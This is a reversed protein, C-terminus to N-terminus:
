PKPSLSISGFLVVRPPCSEAPPSEMAAAEDEDLMMAVASYRRGDGFRVDDFSHSSLYNTAIGGGNEYYVLDKALYEPLAVAHM